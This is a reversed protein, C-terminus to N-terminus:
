KNKFFDNKFSENLLTMLENKLFVLDNKDTLPMSLFFSPIIKSSFLKTWDSLQRWPSLLSGKSGGRKRISSGLAGYGRGM